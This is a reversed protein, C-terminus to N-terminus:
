LDYLVTSERASMSAATFSSCSALSPGANRSTRTRPPLRASRPRGVVEGTWFLSANMFFLPTCGYAQGKACERVAAVFRLSTTRWNGAACTNDLVVLVRRGWECSTPNGAPFKSATAVGSAWASATARTWRWFRERLRQRCRRRGREVEELGTAMVAESKGASGELGYGGGSGVQGCVSGELGNGQGSRGAGGVGVGANGWM